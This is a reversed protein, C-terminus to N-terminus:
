SKTLAFDAETVPSNDSKTQAVIAERQHYVELIADAADYVAQLLVNPELPSHSFPTM